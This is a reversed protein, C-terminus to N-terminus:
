IIHYNLCGKMYIVKHYAVKWTYLRVILLLASFLSHGTYILASWIFISACILSITQECPWIVKETEAQKGYQVAGASMEPFDAM